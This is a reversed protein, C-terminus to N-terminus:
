VLVECEMITFKTCGFSRELSKAVAPHRKIADYMRDLNEAECWDRLYEATEQRLCTYLVETPANVLVQWAILENDNM